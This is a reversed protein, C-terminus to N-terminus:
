SQWSQGTVPTLTDQGKRIINLGTSREGNDMEQLSNKAVKSILEFNYSERTETRTETKTKTKTETETERERETSIHQQQQHLKQNDLAKINGCVIFKKFSSVFELKERSEGARRPCKSVKDEGGLKVGVSL